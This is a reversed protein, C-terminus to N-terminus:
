IPYRYKRSLKKFGYSDVILYMGNTVVIDGMSMSTHWLGKSELLPDAEGEPSWKEGQMMSFVKEPNTESVKGLLAHTKGIDAVSWDKPIKEIGRNFDRSHDSTVYWIETPGVPYVSNLDFM